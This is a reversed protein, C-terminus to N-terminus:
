LKPDYTQFVIAIGDRPAVTFVNDLSANLTGQWWRPLYNGRLPYQLGATTVRCVSSIAFISVQQRPFSTFVTSRDIPTFIGYDTMMCVPPNGTLQIVPKRRTSSDNHSNASLMELYDALLSINGLTHDERKGTAGLIIIASNPWNAHAYRFAKTQDNTDQEDIRIVDVGDCGVISDLDGIVTLPTRIDPIHRMLTDYAGDCCVIHDAEAMALLPQSASPFDGNCLIVIKMTQISSQPLVPLMGM